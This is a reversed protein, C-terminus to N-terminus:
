RGGQLTDIRAVAYPPLELVLLGTDTKWSEGPRARFDEPSMMAERVSTEDLFRVFVQAALGEVIVQQPDTTLNAILVRCRGGHRVALGDVKLTDSSMTPLVEGGAFEGVDALVHYVPFVSGPLSQLVKPLPSGDETGMVGRWGITEYYTMSYAGSEAVYKLSGTTWVAGFLAMQREDVRLPLEFAPLELGPGSSGYGFRPILTISTVAVPLDGVFQRASEVTAAQTELAEVLSRNDFAHVQPNLSYSVLDVTKMSPRNRNLEAFYWHTGGGIKADADYSVLYKRALDLWVGSTAPEETHFVLWHLVPPRVEELLAALAPLENTTAESVHLAIELAVGLARAEATALRLTPEYNLESLVLDVRLHSLNLARLRILETGTLAGGHSAMGLGIRPLPALPTGGVTFTLDPVISERPLDSIHGNLTITVSQAIETGEEVEVPFPLALPTSYTKFSADTWNRQDEMEFVDGELRVEAWADPFVEHSIARLSMFPQHPSIHEPFVGHEVTGDTKEVICPQGSCERIPHLVCLGIRNRLFSSRALGLMSFTITGNTEGVIKCKSVFDIDGQQYEADYAIQFTDDHADM